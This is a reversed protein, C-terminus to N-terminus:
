GGRLEGSPAYCADGDAAGDRSEQEADQGGEEEESSAFLALELGFVHVHGIRWSLPPLVHRPRRRRPVRHLQSLKQQRRFGVVLHRCLQSRQARQDLLMDLVVVVLLRNALARLRQRLGKHGQAESATVPAAAAGLREHPECEVRPRAEGGQLVDDRADGEIADHEREWPGRRRGRRRRRARGHRQQRRSDRGKCAAHRGRLAVASIRFTLTTPFCHAKKTQKGAGM